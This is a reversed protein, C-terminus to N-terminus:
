KPVFQCEKSDKSKQTKYFQFPHISQECVDCIKPCTYWNLYEQNSGYKTAICTDVDKNIKTKNDGLIICSVENKYNGYGFSGYSSPKLNKLINVLESQKIGWEIYKTKLEKSFNDFFSNDYKDILQKKSDDFVNPYRKKGCDTSFGREDIREGRSFLKEDYNNLRDLPVSSIGAKKIGTKFNSVSLRVPILKLNFCIKM